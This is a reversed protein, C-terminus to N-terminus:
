ECGDQKNGLDVGIFEAETVAARGDELNMKSLADDVIQLYGTGQLSTICDQISTEIGGLEEDTEKKSKELKIAHHLSYSLENMRNWFKNVEQMQSLCEKKLAEYSTDERVMLETAIPLALGCLRSFEAFDTRIGEM